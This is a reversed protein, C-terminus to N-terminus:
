VVSKRDSFESIATGDGAPAYFSDHKEATSGTLPQFWHTYPTAGRERAWARMASPVGDALDSAPSLGNELAHQLRKFVSKPLYQQQAVPGFVNMGYIQNSPATLDLSGM